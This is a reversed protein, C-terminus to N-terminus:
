TFVIQIASIIDVSLRYLPASTHLYTMM